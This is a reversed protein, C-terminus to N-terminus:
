QKEERRTRNEARRRRTGAIRSVKRRIRINVCEMSYM